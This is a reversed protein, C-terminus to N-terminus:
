NLAKIRRAISEMHAFVLGDEMQDDLFNVVSVSVLRDAVVMFVRWQDDTTDPIIPGDSDQTHVYYIGDDSMTGLVTLRSADGKRSLAARGADSQFYTELDRAEIADMIGREALVNVLILGKATSGENEPDCPAMVVFAGSTAVKSQRDNFCYNAARGLTVQQGAVSVIKTDADVEAASATIQQGTGVCGSLVLAAVSAASFQAVWASYRALYPLTKSIVTEGRLGM